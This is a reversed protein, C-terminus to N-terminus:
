LLVKNYALSCTYHISLQHSLYVVLYLRLNYLWCWLDCGIIAISVSMQQCATKWTVNTGTFDYVVHRQHTILQIESPPTPTLTNTSVSINAPMQHYVSLNYTSRVYAMWHRCVDRSQITSVYCFWHWINQWNVWFPAQDSIIVWICQVLLLPTM